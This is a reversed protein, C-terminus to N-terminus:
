KLTNVQERIKKIFDNLDYEHKHKLKYGLFIENKVIMDGFVVKVMSNPQQQNLIYTPILSIGAGDVIVRLIMHVNPIIHVPKILPRNRFHERWYRRIIPLELGYSIWQQKLLWEERIILENSVPVDLSNPAVLVFQEELLRTYEIGPALFKKSTIIVDVRDEKLLELCQEADGFYAVTSVEYESLNRLIIESYMEPASGIKVVNMTPLSTSKLGMTAQELAEILPAVQSYLEKGRETPIMKRATRKFLPEGTEAELAALHQSMAPQTMIRAKAAESVSSHKYIAIFSRYWEFDLM